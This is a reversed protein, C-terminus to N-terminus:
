FSTLISRNSILMFVSYLLGVLGLSFFITEAIVLGANEKAGESAALIALLIFGVIRVVKNLWAQRDAVCLSSECICFIVLIVFTHAPVRATERIYLCALITYLVAFLVAPQYTEIGATPLPPLAM